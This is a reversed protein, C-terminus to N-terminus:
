RSEYIVEASNLIRGRTIWNPNNEVGRKSLLAVRHGLLETLADEADIYDIFSRRSSPGYKVLVDIDSDPSFDDYLISGFVAMEDIHWQQCFEAIEGDSVGLRARVAERM